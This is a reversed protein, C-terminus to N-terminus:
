SVIGGHADFYWEWFDRITKPLTLAPLFKKITQIGVDRVDTAGGRTLVRTVYWKKFSDTQM